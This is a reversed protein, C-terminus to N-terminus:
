KLRAIPAILMRSEVDIQFTGILGLGPTIPEFDLEVLIHVIPDNTSNVTHTITIMSSSLEGINFYKNIIEQCVRQNAISSANNCDTLMVDNPFEGICVGANATYDCAPQVIAYRTGERVATNLVAYYFVARGIDFLGMVLLIILPFLLAFEVLSQGRHRQRNKM